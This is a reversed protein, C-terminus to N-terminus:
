NGGEAIMGQPERQRNGEAVTGSALPERLGAFLDDGTIPKAPYAQTFYEYRFLRRLLFSPLWIFAGGGGQSAHKEGAARKQDYYASVDVRVHLEDDPTGLRTLDVDGNRGFRTPDRRAFRLLRIAWRIWTRPLATYFLRDPMWRPLPVEPCAAADGLKEWAQLVAQNVKIHDPHFYGGTPDHTM